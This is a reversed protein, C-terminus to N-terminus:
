VEEPTESTPYEKEDAKEDDGYFLAKDIPPRLQSNQVIRRNSFSIM